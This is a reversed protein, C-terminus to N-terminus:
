QGAEHTFLMLTRQRGTSTELIFPQKYNYFYPAIVGAGNTKGPNSMLPRPKLDGDYRFFKRETEDSMDRYM